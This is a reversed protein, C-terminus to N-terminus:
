VFRWDRASLLHVLRFSCPVGGDLSVGLRLLLPLFALVALLSDAGLTAALIFNLALALLIAFLVAQSGGLAAGLLLVVDLVQLLSMATQGRLVVPHPTLLSLKAIVQCTPTGQRQRMSWFAAVTLVDM